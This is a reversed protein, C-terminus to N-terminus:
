VGGGTGLGVGLMSLVDNPARVAGLAELARRRAEPLWREYERRGAAALRSFTGVVKLGRQAACELYRRRWGPSWCLQSAANALWRGEDLAVESAGRERLLSAPDYTDPGGRMDQFDLARVRKEKWFLNHLHFDRHVLRYPHAALREALDDLFRTATGSAPVSGFQEFVALERRFFAADFPPNPLGALPCTQFAGLAILLQEGLAPHDHVSAESLSESGLDESLTVRGAVGLAEPIPLGRERGWRQVRADRDAQAEGEPPYLAAVATQGSVLGIRFFRRQSADGALPEVSTASLGLSSLGERLADDDDQHWM